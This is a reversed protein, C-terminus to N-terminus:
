MEELSLIAPDPQEKDRPILVGGDALLALPALFLLLLPLLTKKM